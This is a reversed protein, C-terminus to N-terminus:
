KQLKLMRRKLAMEQAEGTGPMEEAGIGIGVIRVTIEVPATGIEVAVRGTTVTTSIKVARATDLISEVVVAAAAAAVDAM